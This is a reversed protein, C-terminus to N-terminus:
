VYDPPPIGPDHRLGSVTSGDGVWWWIVAVAAAGAVVGGPVSLVRRREVM